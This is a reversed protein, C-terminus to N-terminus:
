RKTAKTLTADIDLARAVSAMGAKGPALPNPALVAPPRPPRTMKTVFRFSEPGPLKRAAQSASPGRVTIKRTDPRILRPEGILTLFGNRVMAPCVDGPSPIQRRLKVKLM